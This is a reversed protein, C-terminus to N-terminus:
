RRWGACGPPTIALSNRKGSMPLTQGFGLDDTPQNGLPSRDPDILRDDLDFGVLRHHLDGRWEGADDQM